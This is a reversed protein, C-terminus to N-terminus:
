SSLNRGRDTHVIPGQYGCPVSSPRGAKNRKNEFETRQAETRDFTLRTLSPKGEVSEGKSFHWGLDRYNGIIVSIDDEREAVISHLEYDVRM